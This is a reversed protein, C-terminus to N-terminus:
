NGAMFLANAFFLKGNEWFGRFLPNDALYIVTGRGMNESGFVLSGGQRKIAESGVFGAAPTTDQPLYVANGSDLWQYSRGSLKLTHYASGYGFALPHTPDVTAKFIAGTILEKIAERQSSNYSEPTHHTETNEEAETTALSFDDDRDLVNLASGIAILKGGDRVWSKIKQLKDKDLSRMNPLILVDYASLDVREFYSDDLVSVPYHLQQEFFHWVEGFGLTSVSGGSYIAAKPAKIMKVSPSGFDYGSDVFGTTTSYISKSAKRAAKELIDIVPIHKNDGKTVILSGRDFTHEGFSFPAENTRVRVGEKILDALFRADKMSNWDTIWALANKDAVAAPSAAPAAENAQVIKKSAVTHLGYAYPLSWATIDYTISDNLKTEPEFLVKVLTGKLQNTSVVLKPEKNNLSVGEEYGMGKVANNTYGYTIEHADLLQTLAEIKDENGQLVYSQFEFNKKAYFDAFEAILREAHAASTEVTSIGTTFHHDIRDKLTLTDGIATIVGLGARGSGGQEYTMGIGGNYTPYTDGYSPYLLDFREKTFYLWGEQDFYKAHNKGLTVQFDKQWDTIVEHLPEAAPAFYYPNNMGQEHFDVHVHPLWQTFVKLRQQSEKQTIWVWDRNLDFMYHNPRGALWPEHHEKSNPDTQYPANAFQNYWNVYRDRGDPNICPDIIVVTNELLEKKGTLLEYATLMSAETSVSENGHVNYSMWVVAKNAESNGTASAMHTKRIDELNAINDASSIFVVMLTRGEYTTGYPQLKVRDPAQSALHEFYDTVQHHRSFRTGLEYGLFDSPSLLEQAASLQFCLIMLFFHKIKM